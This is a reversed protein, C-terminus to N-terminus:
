SWLRQLAISVAEFPEASIHEAGGFSSVLRYGGGDRRHVEVRRSEPDVLWLHPVGALAYLPLKRRRDLEETSPSLIECVWDPAISFWAADPLESMRERRWGAIDPVLVNGDLHLEPEYLIWWGGPGSRGHDFADHLESTLASGVRAHRPAPRPSLYLDGGAIEAIRDEPASLVDDYTAGERAHKVM